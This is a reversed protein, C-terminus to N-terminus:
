GRSRITRHPQHASELSAQRAPRARSRRALVNWERDRGWGFRGHLRAPALPFRGPRSQEHAGVGPGASLEHRRALDRPVRGRGPAPRAVAWARCPGSGAANRLAEAARRAPRAM